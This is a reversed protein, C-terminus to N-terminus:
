LQKIFATIRRVLYEHSAGKLPVVSSMVSKSDFDDKAVVICRTTTDRNCGMFCYDVHLEEVIKERHGKRHEM